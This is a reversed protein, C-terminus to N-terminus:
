KSVKVKKKKKWIPMMYGLSAKFEQDVYRWREFTSNYSHAVM